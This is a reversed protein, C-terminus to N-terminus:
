DFAYEIATLYNIDTQEVTAPPKSDHAIQVSVKLDLSKDIAVKLTAVELIRYDGFAAVDPQYYFTNYFKATETFKYRTLLYFNGRVINHTEEEIQGALLDYKERSYFAGAGM